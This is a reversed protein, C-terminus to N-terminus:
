HAERSALYTLGRDMLTAVIAAHNTNAFRQWDALTDVNHVGRDHSVMLATQGDPQIVVCVGRGVTNAQALWHDIQQENTM